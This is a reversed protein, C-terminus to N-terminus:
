GTAPGFSERLRNLTSHGAVKQSRALQNRCESSAVNRLLGVLTFVALPTSAEMMSTGTLSSFFTVMVAAQIGHCLAAAHSKASFKRRLRGAWGYVSIWIGLMLFLGVIGGEALFQLYSDHAQNAFESEDVVISGTALYVLHRIGAYTKGSDVFRGYGIGILPSDEFDGVAEHYLRFRGMVNANGEFFLITAARRSISPNALALLIVPVLVLTGIRVLSQYYGKRWVFQLLLTVTFAVYATRAGSLIIGLLLCVFILSPWALLKPKPQRLAFCLALLAAIAYLNGTTMHTRYLGLFMALMIHGTQLELLGKLVPLNLLALHGPGLLLLLMAGLFAAAALLALYVWILRYVFAPALGVDGLLLLPLYAVLLAGDFRLFSYSFLNLFPATTLLYSFIWFVYAAIAFRITTKPGLWRDPSAAKTWLLRLPFLGLIAVVNFIPVINGALSLVLLTVIFPAM